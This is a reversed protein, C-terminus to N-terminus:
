CKQVSLENMESWKFVMFVHLLNTRVVGPWVLIMAPPQAVVGGEWWLLTKTVNFFSTQILIFEWIVASVWHELNNRGPATNVHVHQMRSTNLLGLTWKSDRKEPSRSESSRNHHEQFRFLPFSFQLKPNKKTGKTSGSHLVSHFNNRRKQNAASLVECVFLIIIEESGRHIMYVLFM